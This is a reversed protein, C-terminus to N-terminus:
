LVLIYGIYIHSGNYYRSNEENGYIFLHWQNISHYRPGSSVEIEVNMGQSQCVDRIEYVTPNDAAQFSM